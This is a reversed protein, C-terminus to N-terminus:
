AAKTIAGELSALSYRARSLGDGFRGRQGFVEGAVYGEYGVLEGLYWELDIVGEGPFLREEDRVDEAAMLGADALHVHWVPLGRPSPYGGHHWHWSDFLIGAHRGVAEVFGCYESFSQVYPYRKGRRLHLPTLSEIALRMGSGGLREAWERYEPVLDRVEDVSPPVSCTLTRLGVKRCFEVVGAALRQGPYVPLRGSSAVMEGLAEVMEEAKIVGAVRLDVDIAGFGAARALEIQERWTEGGMGM